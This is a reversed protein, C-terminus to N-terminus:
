LVTLGPFSNEALSAVMPNHYLYLDGGVTLSGFSEPLSELQNDEFFLDGDVTLDGICEPLMEILQRRWMLDGLVHSADEPDVVVAEMLMEVTLEDGDEDCAAPNCAVIEAVVEM